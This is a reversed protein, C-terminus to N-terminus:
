ESFGFHAGHAEDVILPIRKEHVIKAIAAVDSVVGEYTPSTILVAEIDPYAELAARVQAPQISGCIQISTVLKPYLYVPTLNGMEIANYVSKHCNRAVLIRGGRQCSGLIASILGCSSGNVLFWTEDAGYLGAARRQARDIIGRAHHMNDFGEIETIDMQVTKGFDLFEPNRKHGPMHFPYIDGDGYLKLCTYLDSETKKM